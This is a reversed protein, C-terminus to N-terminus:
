FGFSDLLSNADPEQFVTPQPTAPTPQTTPGKGDHTLGPKYPMDAVVLSGRRKLLKRYDIGNGTLDLPLGKAQQPGRLFEWNRVLDLALLDCGMRDYLRANRVVFNWEALPPVQSAGKLTQLTKERLQKYLVIM